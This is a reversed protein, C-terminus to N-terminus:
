GPVEGRVELDEHTLLFTLDIIHNLQEYEMLFADHGHISHIVALSVDAGLARLAEYTAEARDHHLPPAISPSWVPHASRIRALAEVEECVGITSTLHTM